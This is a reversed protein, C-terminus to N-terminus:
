FKKQKRIDFKEFFNSKRKRGMKNEKWKVM